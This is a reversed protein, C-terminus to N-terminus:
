LQELIKDLVENPECGPVEVLVFSLSNPTAKQGKLSSLGETKLTDTTLPRTVRKVTKGLDREFSQLLATLQSSASQPDTTDAPASYVRCFYFVKVGDLIRQEKVFKMAAVALDPREAGQTRLVLPATSSSPKESSSPCALPGPCAMESAFAAGLSTLIKMGDACEFLTNGPRDKFSEMADTKWIGSFKSSAILFHVKQPGSPETQSALGKLKQKKKPAGVACPHLWALSPLM